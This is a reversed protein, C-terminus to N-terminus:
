IRRLMEFNCLRTEFYGDRDKVLEGRSDKSLLIHTGRLNLDEIGVSRLRENKRQILSFYEEESILKERYARLANVGELYDSDSTALHEDPGNWYGWLLTYNHGSRLIPEGGPTKFSRHSQYRSNDFIFESVENRNGMMYIARPYITRIGNRSLELAISMEEFPSNHGHALIRKEDPKFPDLDPTVGVKSVRWVLHINDKTMTYYVRSVPSLQRRPTNEWREPLFYEFLAPDRGVVWLLGGTSEARGYIYDVNLIRVMSLHAPLKRKHNVAFRNKQRKLYDRRKMRRVMRDREPTRELLEFDVMGYRVRGDRTKRLRVGRSDPRVIVHQPKKDRVTFGKRALDEEAMSTIEMMQRNCIIGERCAQGADIGPLWEYIVAYERFIDLNIDREHRKCIARMKYDKRELQWLEVRGAPVYIALPRQTIVEDLEEFKTNRLEMVLSFEEFPSNFEATSLDYGDEEEAIVKQGMRNWKFVIDVSRGKVSKTTIKYPHSTGMLRVHHNEFWQRDYLFSSPDLYKLLPEGLATTYLDSGDDLKRHFYKVGMISKIKM